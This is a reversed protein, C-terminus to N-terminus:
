SKRNVRVANGRRSNESGNSASALAVSAGSLSYSSKEAACDAAKALTRAAPRIAVAVTNRSESGDKLNGSGAAAAVQEITFADVTAPTKDWVASLEGIAVREQRL